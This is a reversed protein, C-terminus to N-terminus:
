ACARGDCPMASLDSARRADDSRAARCPSARQVVDGRPRAVEDRVADDAVVAEGAGRVLVEVDVRPPVELPLDDDLDVNGLHQPRLQRPRRPLALVDRHPRVGVRVLPDLPAVPEHAPDPLRHPVGRVRARHQRLRRQQQPVQVQHQLDRAARVIPPSGTPASSPRSPTAPSRAACAAVRALPQLRDALEVPGADRAAIRTAGSIGPM